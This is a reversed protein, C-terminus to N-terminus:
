RKTYKKSASQQYLKKAIEEKKKLAEVKFEALERKHTEEKLQYKLKDIDTM